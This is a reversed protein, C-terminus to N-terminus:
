LHYIIPIILNKIQKAYYYALFPWFQEKCPRLLNNNYLQRTYDQMSFQVTITYKILYM